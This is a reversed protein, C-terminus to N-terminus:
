QDQLEDLRRRLFEYESEVQEWTGPHLLSFDVLERMRVQIRNILLYRIQEATLAM